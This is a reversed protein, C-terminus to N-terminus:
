FAERITFFVGLDRSSSAGVDIRLNIDEFVNFRLGGGGVFHTQEFPKQLFKESVKGAGVFLVGGLRWWIHRRWEGQVFWANKDMYLYPHSFGRLRHKDGIFPLKFFPTNQTSQSLFGQMALVSKKTNLPIFYRINLESLIFDYNSKSFKGYFATSVSALIGKSPYIKDDRTDFVIMPGVGNAWKGKYGCVSPNLLGGKIKTFQNYNVDIRLGLLWNKSFSRLVDSEFLFRNMNFFSYPKEKDQNGIGFFQDPLFLYQTKVRVAWKQFFMDATLEAEIMKKTSLLLSPTLVTQTQHQNKSKEPIINWLAIIGGSVGTRESFTVMPYFSLKHKQTNISTLNIIRELWGSSTGKAQSSDEQAKAEVTSFFLIFVFFVLALFKPM